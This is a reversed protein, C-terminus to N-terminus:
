KGEIKDYCRGCFIWRKSLKPNYYSNLIGIKKGCESCELRLNNLGTDNLKVEKIRKIIMEKTIEDLEQDFKPYVQENEFDKHKTFIEKFEQFNCEKNSKIIKNMAKLQKYIKDHDQMLRPIMKYGEVINEPEYVTFLVKEETFIHKELEWKFIDYARKITKKDLDICKEFDNLLKVIKDHDKEMVESITISNM